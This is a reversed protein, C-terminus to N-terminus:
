PKMRRGAYGVLGALGGALLLMTSPEPVANDKEYAMIPRDGSDFFLATGGSVGWTAGYTFTGVGSTYPDVAVGASWLGIDTNEGYLSMGSGLAALASNIGTVPFTYEGMFLVTGGAGLFTDLAALESSDLAGSFLSTAFLDVGSLLSDSVVADGVNSSSVGALSNYYSNLNGGIWINTPDHVIVSTGGNLINAFFKNNDADAAYYAPTSDGSLFITGAFASTSTVFALFLCLPLLRAINRAVGKLNRM